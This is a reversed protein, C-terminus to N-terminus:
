GHDPVWWNSDLGPGFRGILAEAFVLDLPATVKFARPDGHVAVVQGGAAAVLAVDDTADVDEVGDHAAALVQRPFGQPTQMALLRSRDVLEGIEGTEAGSWRITDTVPMVPVAGRVDQRGLADIVRDIVEAPVFARAADHVLVVDVDDALATLGREVSEQRTRGGPVVTARPILGAASATLAAPAAVVVDRVRPHTTFRQTAHELLTRGAVTVFAKPVDAGLRDGSGAAVLIAAVIM